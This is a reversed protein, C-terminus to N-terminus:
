AYGGSPQAAHETWHKTQDSLTIAVTGGSASVEASM